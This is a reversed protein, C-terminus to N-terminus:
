IRIRMVRQPTVYIYNPQILDVCEGFRKFQKHAKYLSSENYHIKVEYYYINNASFAVVDAEGHKNRNGYMLHRQITHYRKSKKLRAVLEDVIKEHAFYDELSM